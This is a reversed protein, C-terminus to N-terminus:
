ASTAGFMPKPDATPTKIGLHAVVREANRAWTYKAVAEERARRGLRIRFAPAAALQRMASLLEDAHGPTVLLASCGHELVLALQDLRSAVISKGMAMYEFLKTPSGFFRQGDPMPVHPSVLIDTADLYSPVLQHAVSGTFVVLDKGRPHGSIAKKMEAFLPGEGILLFKLMPKQEASDLAKLIAKQLVEIGHWYSFTGVFGAVVDDGDLSLKARIQDGGVNPRFYETDVANPSVVIQGLAFGRKVLDDRLVESVVVIISACALSFEECLVLLKFFRVPDWNQSIWAEFGNFELVLPVGIWRSLLAGAIAFRGHRQYIARPASTRLIRSIKRAFAVNFRLAAIEHFLYFRGHYPVVTVPFNDSQFSRGSYIHCKAGIQAMGNLFGSIHTMSGGVQTQDFPFPLVYALDIGSSPKYVVPVPKRPLLKLYIWAFVLALLDCIGSWFAKPFMRPWDLRRYSKWEGTGTGHVTEKCRHILGSFALVQPMRNDSPLAFFYVFARGHLRRLIQFQGRSGQERFERQNLFSIDCNPYRLRVEREAVESSGSWCLVHVMNEMNM